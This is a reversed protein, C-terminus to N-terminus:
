VKQLYNLRQSKTNNTYNLFRLFCGHLLTVKLLTATKILNMKKERIHFMLKISFVILALVTYVDGFLFKILNFIIM